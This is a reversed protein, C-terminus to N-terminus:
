QCDQEEKTLRKPLVQNALGLCNTPNRYMCTQKLWYKTPMTYRSLMSQKRVESRRINILCADKWVTRCWRSSHETRWPALRRHAVLRSWVESICLRHTHTHLGIVSDPSMCFRWHHQSDLVLPHGNSVVWGFESEAGRGWSLPLCLWACLVSQNM